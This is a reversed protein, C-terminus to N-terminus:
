SLPSIFVPTSFAYNRRIADLYKSVRGPHFQNKVDSYVFHHTWMPLTERKYTWVSLEKNGYRRHFKVVMKIICHKKRTYRKSAKPLNLLMLRVTLLSTTTSSLISLTKKDLTVMKELLNQLFVFLIHM